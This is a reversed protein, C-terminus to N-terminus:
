GSRVIETEISKHNRAAFKQLAPYAALEPDNKV